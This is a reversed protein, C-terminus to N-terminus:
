HCYNQGGATAVSWPYAGVDDFRAVVEETVVDVIAFADASSVPVLLYKGDATTSATETTGGVDITGRLAGSDRDVMSVQEKVRNLVFAVAPALPSYNVGYSEVDGATSRAVEERSVRDIVSVTADGWNPMMYTDRDNSLADVFVAWPRDGVALDGVRRRAVTDYLLVAGTEIHAAVLMGDADIQADAFGCPDESCAGPQDEGAVVLADVVERTTADIVTIQNGGISPVYARDGAFRAFHPVVMSDHAITAVVKDTAMDIVSVSGDDENVVWLEDAGAATTAWRANAHTPHAGVDIRDVVSLTETDVVAIADHHTATVYLKRADRSLVAMHNANVPEDGTGIGIDARAVVSVDRLDVVFLDDSAESIVYARHELAAADFSEDDSCGAMGAAVVALLGVCMTRTVTM